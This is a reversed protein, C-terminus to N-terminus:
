DRQIRGEPTQNTPQFVGFCRLVSVLIRALSLQAHFEFGKEYTVINTPNVTAQQLIAITCHVHHHSNSFFYLWEKSEGGRGINQYHTSRTLISDSRQIIFSLVVILYFEQLKFFFPIQSCATTLITSFLFLQNLILFKRFRLITILM